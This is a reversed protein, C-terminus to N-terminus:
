FFVALNTYNLLKVFTADTELYVEYLLMTNRKYSTKSFAFTYSGLVDTNFTSPQETYVPVVLPDRQASPTSEVKITTYSYM